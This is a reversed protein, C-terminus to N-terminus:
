VYGKWLHQEEHRSQCVSSGDVHPDNEDGRVLLGQSSGSRGLSMRYNADRGSCILATMM